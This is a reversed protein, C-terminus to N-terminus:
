LCPFDRRKIKAMRGDPHHWVIGEHPFDNMFEALDDYSRPAGLVVVTGHRVLMHADYNEPNGQVKPGVLEYTGDGDADKYEWSTKDRSTYVIGSTGYNGQTIM